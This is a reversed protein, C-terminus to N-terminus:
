GNLNGLYQDVLHVFYDERTNKLMSDKKKFRKKLISNASMMARKENETEKYVTNFVHMWQRQVKESYKKVYAPLEAISDYPM